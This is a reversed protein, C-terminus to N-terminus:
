VSVLSGPADQWDYISALVIPGPPVQEDYCVSNREWSPIEWFEGNQPVTRLFHQFARMDTPLSGHQLTWHVARIFQGHSFIVIFEEDAVNNLYEFVTKVRFLFQAYSEADEGDVYEPDNRGWFAEVLPRRERKTSIQHSTSLYTFEQVPWIKHPVDPFRRLTPEATQIAREYSSTIILSPKTRFSRAITKAHRRGRWTLGVMAADPTARGANAESEAHRIFWVRAM